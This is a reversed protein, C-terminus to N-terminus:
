DCNTPAIASNAAVVNQLMKFANNSTSFTKANYKEVLDILEEDF